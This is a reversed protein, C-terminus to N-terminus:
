VEEKMPAHAYSLSFETSTQSILIIKESGSLWVEGSFMSILEQFTKYNFIIKTPKVEAKPNKYIIPRQRDGTEDKFNLYMEGVENTTLIAHEYPLSDKFTEVPVLVSFSFTMQKGDKAPVLGINTENAGFPTDRDHSITDLKQTVRDDMAQGTIIVKEEDTRMTITEGSFGYALRKKVLETNAMFEEEGDVKISKFFDKNYSAFVMIDAALSTKVKAGEPTFKILVSDVPSSGSKLKLVQSLMSKLRNPELTIEFM